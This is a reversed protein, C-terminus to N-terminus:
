AGEEDEYRRRRKRESGPKGYTPPTSAMAALESLPGRETTWLLHVVIPPGTMVVGATPEPSRRAKSESGLRVIIAVSSGIELRAVDVLSHHVVQRPRRLAVGDGHRDYLGAM